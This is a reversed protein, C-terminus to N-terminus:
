KTTDRGYLADLHRKRATEKAREVQDWRSRQAFASLRAAIYTGTLLILFVFFFSEM